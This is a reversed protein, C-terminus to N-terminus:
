RRMAEWRVRPPCGEAIWACLENRSWRRLRGLKVGRPVRGSADLSYFTSRSVHLLRAVEEADILLPEADAPAVAVCAGAGDRPVTPAPPQVDPRATPRAAIM